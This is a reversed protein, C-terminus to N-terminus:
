FVEDDLLDKTETEGNEKGEGGTANIMEKRRILEKAPEFFESLVVKEDKGNLDLFLELEEYSKTLRSTSDPVMMLSENLVNQFNKLDYQDSGSSSMSSLKSRNLTVEAVYAKM